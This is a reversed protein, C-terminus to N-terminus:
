VLQPLLDFEIKLLYSTGWETRLSAPKGSETLVSTIEPMKRLFYTCARRDSSSEPVSGRILYMLDFATYSRGRELKALVPLITQRTLGLQTARLAGSSTKHSQQPKDEKERDSLLSSPQTNQEKDEEKITLNYKECWIREPELVPDIVIEKTKEEKYQKTADNVWDSTATDIWNEILDDEIKLVLNVMTTDDIGLKRGSKLIKTLQENTVTDV